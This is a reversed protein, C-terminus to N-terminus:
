RTEKPTLSWFTQCLYKNGSVLERSEHYYPASSPFVVASGASPKVQIGQDRFAIEGGEYNDNLYLCISVTANVRNYSNGGEHDVHPGMAAPPDYVSISMQDLGGVSNGTTKEYQKAAKVVASSIDLYISNLASPSHSISSMYGQKQKGYPVVTQSGMSQWPIWPTISTDDTCLHNTYNLRDIVRYPNKLVNQIYMINPDLLESKSRITWMERTGNRM